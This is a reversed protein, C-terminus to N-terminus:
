KPPECSPNKPDPCKPPEGCDFDSLVCRGPLDTYADLIPGSFGTCFFHQNNRNVSSASESCVADSFTVTINGAPAGRTQNAVFHWTGDSDTPCSAGIANECITIDSASGVGTAMAMAIVAIWSLTRM